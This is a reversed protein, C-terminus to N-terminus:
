FKLGVLLSGFAFLSKDTSDGFISISGTGAVNTVGTSAEAWFNETLNLTFGMSFRTLFDGGMSNNHKKSSSTVTGSSYNTIDSTEATLLSAQLRAGANFTIKDPIIKYQMALRLDPRFTFTFTDTSAGNYILNHSANPIMSNQDDSTFGFVLNLKFKLALRDKSWSGALSPTVQNVVNFRELYNTGDYTGKINSTKYTSGDLYSYDNNYINFALIYDLDATFKFGNKNYLNYGGLGATFIPDLRNSSKAINEGPTASVETKQYDRNFVLEFTAYPRIGNKTMDKAMAWALQPALYGYEAKYNTYPTSAVIINDENFRQYNTRFTLRFGMNAAGILLAVNNVPNTLGGVSISTYSTNGGSETANNVPANAWFQGNYFAGVYIGKIKTAFGVNAYTSSKFSALGLWKNFKVGSYMDPRIFDDAYSRYRGDTTDSQPSAWISSGTPTTSPLNQAWVGATTIMLLLALSFIKSKM